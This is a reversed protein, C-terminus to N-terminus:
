EVIIGGKTKKHGDKDLLLGREADVTNEAQVVLTEIANMDLMPDGTTFIGRMFVEGKPSKVIVQIGEKTEFSKGFINVRTGDTPLTYYEWGDPFDAGILLMLGYEALQTRYSVRARKSELSSAIADKKKKKSKIKETEYDAVFKRGGGESEPLDVQRLYEIDENAEKAKDKM